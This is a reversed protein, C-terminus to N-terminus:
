GQQQTGEADDSAVPPGISDIVTRASKEWGAEDLIDAADMRAVDLESQTSALAIQRLARLAMHMEIM